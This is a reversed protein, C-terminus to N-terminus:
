HAYIGNLLLFLNRYLITMEIMLLSCLSVLAIGSINNGGWRNVLTSKYNLTHKLIEVIADLNIHCRKTDWIQSGSFVSAQILQPLKNHIKMQEKFLQTRDKKSGVDLKGRIDLQSAISPHITCLSPSLYTLPTQSTFSLSARMSANHKCPLKSTRDEM